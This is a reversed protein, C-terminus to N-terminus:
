LFNSICHNTADPIVFLLVLLLQYPFHFATWFHKVTVNSALL